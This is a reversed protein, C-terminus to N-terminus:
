HVIGALSLNYHLMKLLVAMWLGIWSRSFVGDVFRNWLGSYTTEIRERLSSIRARREGAQAPNIAIV